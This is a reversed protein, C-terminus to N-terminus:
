IEEALSKLVQCRSTHRLKSLASEKIQRVRERTVGILHGIQDLTQAENGDLGFYRRIVYQERDSLSGLVTEVQTQASERLVSADPADQFTDVLTNLLTRKDDDEFTEDLSRVPRASLVVDEVEQTPLDLEAAIEELDPEGIQGLRRSAESIDKLLSLKNLPLRVTRVHEALTQLISQKIWWVAYSIFKYGKTGDFREAATLLGVNGASILDSLSLGRNQYNKAVDIVFRLNAQVLQDRARIDGQSIRAALEVEKERSLPRSTAIDNFYLGVTSEWDHSIGQM